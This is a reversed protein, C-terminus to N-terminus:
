KIFIINILEKQREISSLLFEKVLCSLFFKLKKFESYAEICKEVLDM